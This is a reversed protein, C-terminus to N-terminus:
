SEESHYKILEEIPKKVTKTVKLNFEAAVKNLIGEYIVAVSGVAGIVHNQIQPYKLLYKEFFLRFSDSVLSECFPHNIHDGVFKSFQAFYRNPKSENYAHNLIELRDKKGYKKDFGERLNDPLEKHLYALILSKGIHGGSGEDGLWFGLPPVQHAIATGDWFCSNSGTGLICAIGNNNGFLAKAAAVVDSYTYIKPQYGLAKILGTSIIEGKSSDTIGTGYFYISSVESLKHIHPQLEAVVNDPTIFYPNLGSTHFSEQKSGLLVWDTKTSGSEAILIM